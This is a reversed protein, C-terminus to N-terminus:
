KSGIMSLVYDMLSRRAKDDGKELEAIRPRVDTKKSEAYLTLSVVFDAGIM